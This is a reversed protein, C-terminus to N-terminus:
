DPRTRAPQPRGAAYPACREALHAPLGIYGSFWAVWDPLLSLLREALDERYFGDLYEAFHAVRHPSCTRQLAPLYGEIWDHALVEVAEGFDASRAGDQRQEAHWATFLGVCRAADLPEAAQPRASEASQPPMAARVDQALRVGRHYEAMQQASQRVGFRVDGAGSGSCM